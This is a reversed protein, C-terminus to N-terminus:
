SVGTRKIRSELVKELIYKETPNWTLLWGHSPHSSFVRFVIFSIADEEAGQWPERIITADALTRLMFFVARGPFGETVVM